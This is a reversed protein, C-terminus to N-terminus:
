LMEPNKGIYASARKYTTQCYLVGIQLILSHCSALVPKKQRKKQKTPSYVLPGEGGAERLVKSNGM